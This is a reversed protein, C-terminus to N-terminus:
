GAPWWRSRYESPFQYQIEEISWAYGGRSHLAPQRGRSDELLLYGEDRSESFMGHGVFHLLHPDFDRLANELAQLSGALTYGILLQGARRAQSTAALILDVERETNLIHNEDLGLPASIMVLLRLPELLPNLSDFDVDLPLRFIPTHWDLALFHNGDHLYEWPLNLLPKANDQDIRLVLRLPTRRAAKKRQQWLDALEGAFVTQFLEQGFQVHADSAPPQGQIVSQALNSLLLNIRTSHSQWEFEHQALPNGADDPVYALFHHPKDTSTIILEFNPSARPM